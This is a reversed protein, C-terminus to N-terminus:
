GAPRRALADWNVDIMRPARRSIRARLVMGASPWYRRDFVVETILTEPPLDPGELILEMECTQYRMWGKPASLSVIRITGVVADAMPSRTLRESMTIEM